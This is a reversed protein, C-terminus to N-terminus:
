RFRKYVDSLLNMMRTGTEVSHYTRLDPDFKAKYGCLREENAGVLDYREVGRDMADRMIRWDVLDNVPLDVDPKAGGQWRYIADDDELAVMGSAFEGDVTCVYPRVCGDPLRDYLDAVFRPEVKYPEGQAEHRRKVQTIIREIADVGGERIAYRDDDTRVNSRADGSFSMKVDEEGPTLDVVYTHRPRVAFENWEFPRVDGYASHTRVHTYKPDFERDLWDLCGDIFRRHRREAKRRKLKRFNLLAPGLHPVWLNPPPSFAASMGGKSIEFIPLVGVPEQGKRGVLPHLEAGAHDAQVELAELRHFACAHPSREVHDNWRELEDGDAREVTIGKKEITASM